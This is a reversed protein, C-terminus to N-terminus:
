CISEISPNLRLMSDSIDLYFTQTVRSTFSRLDILSAFKKLPHFDVFCKESGNQNRHIEM